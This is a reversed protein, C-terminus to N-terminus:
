NREKQASVARIIGGCDKRLCLVKFNNEELLRCVAAEQGMGFEFCCWGGPKVRQTFNQLIANYFDLGSEGGDLALHPEYNRVSPELELMEATTIYPPNSILLDFEGLSADTSKMADALVCEVTLELAAANKEAVALADPSVDALVVEARRLRHALALGICGSGTCLDLIRPREPLPLELALDVVAMTDDRPILVDPTVTLPLGYFSWKGLIYPLPEGNVLRDACQTCTLVTEESAEDNDRAMLAAASLGTVYSMLERAVVGAQMGESSSLRDKLCRYLQGIVM